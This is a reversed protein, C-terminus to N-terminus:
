DRGAGSTEEVPPAKENNKELPKIKTHSDQLLNGYYGGVGSGLAITVGMLGLGFAVSLGGTFIAIALLAIALAASIVTRIIASVRFDKQKKLLKLKESLDSTNKLKEAFIKEKFVTIGIGLGPICALTVLCKDVRDLKKQEAPDQPNPEYIMASIRNRLNSIPDQTEQEEQAPHLEKFRKSIAEESLHPLPTDEEKKVPDTSVGLTWGPSPKLANQVTM